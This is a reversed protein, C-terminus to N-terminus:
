KRSQVDEVVIFGQRAQEKDMWFKACDGSDVRNQAKERGSVGYYGVSHVALHDNKAVIKYKTM